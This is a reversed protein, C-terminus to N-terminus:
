RTTVDSVRGHRFTVAMMGDSTRYFWREIPVIGDITVNMERPRGLRDYINRPSLGVIDAMAGRLQMSAAYSTQKLRTPGTDIIVGAACPHDTYVVETRGQCRYVNSAAAEAVLVLSAIAM